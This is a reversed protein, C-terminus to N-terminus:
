ESFQLEDLTTITRDPTFQVPPTLHERNIWVTKIQPFAEHALQLKILQNDIFWIERNEFFTVIEALHDVKHHYIYAFDFLENVYSQMIKVQQYTEDGESFLALINDQRYKKINSIVDQFIFAPYNQNLFTEQITHQDTIGTKECFAHIAKAIHFPEDRLSKETEWFLNSEATYTRLQETIVEKLKASDLLTGDFDVLLVRKKETLEPTLPTM